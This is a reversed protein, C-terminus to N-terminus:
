SSRGTLRLLMDALECLVRPNRRGPGTFKQINMKSLHNKVQDEELTPLAESRCVAVLRLFRPVQPM